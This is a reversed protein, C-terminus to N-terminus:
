SLDTADRTARFVQINQVGVVPPLGGDPLDKVLRSMEPGDIRIPDNSAAQSVTGLLLVAHIWWIRMGSLNCGRYNVPFLSSAPSLLVLIDTYLTCRRYQFPSQTVHAGVDLGWRVKVIVAGGPQFPRRRLASNLR